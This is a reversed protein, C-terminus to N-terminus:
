RRRNPRPRLVRGSAAPVATPPAAQPAAAAPQAAALAATETALLAVAGAAAEAAMNMLPMLNRRVAAPPLRCVEAECAAVGCSSHLLDLCVRQQCARKPRFLASRHAPARLFMVCAQPVPPPTPEGPDGSRLAARWSIRRGFEVRTSQPSDTYSCSGLPYCESCWCHGEGDDSSFGAAESVSGAQGSSSAESGDARADPEAAAPQSDAPVLRPVAAAPLEEPQAAAPVVLPLQLPPGGAPRLVPVPAAAAEAAPAEQAPLLLELPPLQPIGPPLSHPYQDPFMDAPHRQRIVDLVNAPQTPLLGAWVAPQGACLYDGWASVLSDAEAQVVAPSSRREANNLPPPPEPAAQLTAGAAKGGATIRRQRKRQQRLAPSSTDAPAILPLNVTFPTPWALSRADGEADAATSLQTTSPQTFLGRRIVFRSAEKDRQSWQPPPKELTWVGRALM